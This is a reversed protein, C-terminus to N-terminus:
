FVKRLKFTIRRGVPDILYPQYREPILGQQNGVRQKSDFLNDVEVTFRTGRALPSQPFLTDLNAFFRLDVEARAAFSIQDPNALTGASIRRSGYLTGSLQLGLGKYAAGAGFQVVHRTSGGANASAGGALIDIVPLGPRIVQTSSLTWQHTGFANIRLGPALVNGPVPGPGQGHAAGPAASAKFARNFNFGWRIQSRALRALPVPRTDVLILQGAGDRQFRDPFAAQVAANAPPLSAYADRNVVRAYEANLSFDSSGFPMVTASITTARRTEVGLDPNGGSIQRVLVTEQREFDFVRVNDTSIVPDTLLNAPPALQQESFEARLSVAPDPRWNIAGGYDRMGGTATVDRVTGSLELDLDGIGSNQRGGLVPITFSLQVIAEDRHFRSFSDLSEGQTRITIRTAKWEIRLATSVPGAPMQWASGSISVFGGGQRSRLKSLDSRPIDFYAGATPGFPNISGASVGDQYAATDFRRENVLELDRYLFSAGASLRWKGFATNIIAALSLDHGESLTRLPAGITRAILVDRGFPSYPSAAPLQFVATASGTAAESRSVAARASLSLITRGGVKRSLNANLAYTQQEGVLTRDHLPGGPNPRNALVAFDGLVPRDVGAPVGALAVIQGALLSLAPDIEAASVPDPLINGVPDYPLARPGVRIPRDSEYLPDGHKATLVLGTRNGDQLRLLNLEADAAFAGGATALAAAGNFTVQRHAPKIVVNVVRRSPREGLRAAAGRPLLQIKAVAETPLDSIANLGTTPQGNILIVPGDDSPDAQRLVEGLLDGVTDRGYAAIGAEDLEAEAIMGALPGNARSTGTVVIEREDGPAAPHEQEDARAMAGHGTAGAVSGVAFLLRALNPPM